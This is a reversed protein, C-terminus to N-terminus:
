LAPETLGSPKSARVAALDGLARVCALVITTRQENMARELVAIVVDPNITTLLAHIQPSVKAAPLSPDTTDLTKEVALALLVEQALRYEPDLALAYRAYRLGYYEEAKSASITSAPPWGQVIIGNDWRWVIVASP